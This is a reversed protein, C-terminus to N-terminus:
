IVQFFNWSYVLYAAFAPLQHNCRTQVNDRIPYRAQESYYCTEQHYVGDSEYKGTWWRGVWCSTQDAGSEEIISGGHSGRAGRAVDSTSWVICWSRTLYPQFGTLNIDTYDPADAATLGQPSAASTQGWCSNCELQGPLILTASRVAVPM